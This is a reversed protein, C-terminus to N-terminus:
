KTKITKKELDKLRIFETVDEARHIIYQIENEENLVPLNVPSWYRVEYSDDNGATSRVDYKQVAMADPIKNKLVNELSNRLNTTGTAQTDHPNDPFIEFLNHGIIDDRCVMTAKVYANSADVIDFQPTLILYLDPASRLINLLEGKNLHM